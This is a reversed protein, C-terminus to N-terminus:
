HIVTMMTMAVYADVSSDCRAAPFQLVFLPFNHDIPLFSKPAARGLWDRSLWQSPFSFFISHSVLYIVESLLLLSCHKSATSSNCPVWTLGARM